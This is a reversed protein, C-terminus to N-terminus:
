CGKHTEKIMHNWGHILHDDKNGGFMMNFVNMQYLIKM